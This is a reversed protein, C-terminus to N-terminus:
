LIVAVLNSNNAGQFQAVGGQYGIPPESTPSVLLGARGAVNTSGDSAYVLAGIQLQVTSPASGQTAGPQAGPPVMQFSNVNAAMAFVLAFPGFTQTAGPAISTPQGVGLPPVNAQVGRVPNGQPDTFVLDAGTVSVAIANPNFVTLTAAVPPTQQATAAPANVSMQCQLSM